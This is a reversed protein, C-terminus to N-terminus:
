KSTNTDFQCPGIINNLKTFGKYGYFGQYGVAMGLFHLFDVKGKITLTYNGPMISTAIPFVFNVARYATDSSIDLQTCSNNFDNLSMQISLPLNGNLKLLVAVSRYLPSITPSTPIIFQVKLQVQGPRALWGGAADTRFSGNWRSEFPSRYKYGYSDIVRAALTQQLPITWNPTLYSFCRANGLQNDKISLDSFLPKAITINTSLHTPMSIVKVFYKMMLEAMIAHAKFSAHNGDSAFMDIQTNDLTRESFSNVPCVIDRVSFSPIGYNSALEDFGFDQMNTCQTNAIQLNVVNPNVLHLYMVLPRSPLLLLRRTLLEMPQAAKGYVTGVDNAALEVLVIDPQQNPLFNQLCFLFIDSTSAGIALNHLMMLSGTKNYVRTNWWDVLQNSYIQEASDLGGGCSNSGGITVMTVPLGNRAKSQLRQVGQTQRENNDGTHETFWSILSCFHFYSM